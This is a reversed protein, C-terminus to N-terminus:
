KILKIFQNLVKRIIINVNRQNQLRKVLSPSYQYYTKIFWKGFGSKDLVEDRFQRLIMVQPHDYDGYAMTAIYCGSDSVLGSDGTIEKKIRGLTNRNANFSDKIEPLMDMTRMMNLIHTAEVLIKSLKEHTIIEPINNYLFTPEGEFEFPDDYLKKKSFTNNYQRLILSPDNLYKNYEEQANNVVSIIMSLANNVVASSIKLYSEDKVGLTSKINELKPKCSEVLDKANSITKLLNKFRDLKSTIFKLDNELKKNTDRIPKNDIWKQLIKINEEIEQKAINGVAYSKANKLLKMSFDGPDKDTDKYHMFHDIGCAFFEMAMKDAISSYKINNTGLILKLQKILDNTDAILSNAAKVSNAKNVKRISKSEEIKKEIQEIPKQIFGKIFDEKALFHQKTLINLFKISTIIGSKEIENQVQNLFLLQLEKKTTKYTEDTSLTKFDKIFDSELFKLKLSIGRELIAEQTNTGELIGSLYLTGLNNYASANRQSVEGNSTLKTWINIVQDLDAEKIADFAPEDTIPNGNYFWFLAHNIKDSDLNLKSAADDVTDLTRQYNGLTQFSFDVEPEQEAAIFQKLRRVQRDKERATSGVLIGVVRYPNETVLKM